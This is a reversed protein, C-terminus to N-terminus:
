WSGCVRSCSGSCVRQQRRAAVLWCLQWWCVAVLLSGGGVRPRRRVAVLVSGGRVHVRICHGAPRATVRVGLGPPAALLTKQAAPSRCKRRITKGRARRCVCENGNWKYWNVASSDCEGVSLRNSYKGAATYQCKRDVMVSAKTNECAHGIGSCARKTLCSGARQVANSGTQREM